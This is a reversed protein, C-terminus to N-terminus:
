SDHQQIKVRLDCVLRELINDAYPADKQLAQWVGHPWLADSTYRAVVHVHLQSVMNGLAGVNLKDPKFYTKVISSLMSMEDVLRHRDRDSLQDIDQINCQRPVLVLWPYHTNNKLFVRSLPWNGLEICSSQIRADVVFEM